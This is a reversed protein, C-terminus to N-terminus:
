MCCLHPPGVSHQCLVSCTVSCVHSSHCTFYIIHNQTSDGCNRCNKHCKRRVFLWWIKKVFCFLFWNQIVFFDGFVCRSSGKWPTWRSSEVHWWHTDSHSPRRWKGGCNSLLHARIHVRRDHYIMHANQFIWIIKSCLGEWFMVPARSSPLFEITLTDRACWRLIHFLFHFIIRLFFLFFQGFYRANYWAGGHAGIFALCNRSMDFVVDRQQHTHSLTLCADVHSLSLVTSTHTHAHRGYM